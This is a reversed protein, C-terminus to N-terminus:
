FIHLQQFEFALLEFREIRRRIARALNRRPITRGFVKVSQEIAVSALAREGYALARVLAEGFTGPTPEDAPFDEPFYEYARGTLGNRAARALDLAAQALVLQVASAEAGLRVVARRGPRQLQRILKRTYPGVRRLEEESLDAELHTFVAALNEPMM